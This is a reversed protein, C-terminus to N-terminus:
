EGVPIVTCTKAITDIELNVYEGYELWKAAVEKVEERCEEVRQQIEDETLDDRTERLKEEFEDIAEYIVDPNKFVLQIKM